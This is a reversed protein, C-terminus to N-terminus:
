LIVALINLPSACVPAHDHRSSNLRMSTSTRLTTAVCIETTIDAMLAPLLRKMKSPSSMRSM